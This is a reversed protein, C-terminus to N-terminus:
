VGIRADDLALAAAGIKCADAALSSPLVMLHDKFPPSLRSFLEERFPKFFWEGARVPNGGVVVAEPNLLWCANAASAALLRASRDWQAIAIKDGERAASILAGVSCDALPKEIGARAYEDRVDAAMEASGLYEETAGPNGLRAHRGRWDISTMGIQGAVHRSGHVLAGNAIVAGGLGTWVNIFVVDRLGRANGCKWEALAVCNSGNEVVTPLGTREGLLRGLPVSDWGPVNPLEHVWGRHFDVFGPMGVGLAVVGPHSAVLKEVIGAIAEILSAPGDFEQTAIPPVHDIVHSQFVVGAKITTVGFDVGIALSTANRM